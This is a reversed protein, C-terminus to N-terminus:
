RTEVSLNFSRHYIRGGQTQMLATVEYVTGATGGSLWVVAASPTLFSFSEVVLDSNGTSGWITTSWTIATLTDNSGDPMRGSLEKSMDIQYDLLEAADKAPMAFLAM